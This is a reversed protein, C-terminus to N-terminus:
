DHDNIQVLFACRWRKPHKQGEADVSRANGAQRLDINSKLKELM